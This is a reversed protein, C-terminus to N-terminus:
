RRAHPRSTPRSRRPSRSRSRARHEPRACCCSRRRCQQHYGAEFLVAPSGARRLVHFAAFRHPDPRLEVRGASKDVLRAALDASAEDARAHALDALLMRSASRGGGDDAAVGACKRAGRAAGSGRGFRRRVAFLGDSRAGAPQARQGHAALRVPRRRAAARGGRARRADSLPRGRPDDRGPGPRAEGARRSPGPCARSDPGKRAVQGSVSTAGPDRGGHGADIVVIPRGAREQLATFGTAVRRPSM